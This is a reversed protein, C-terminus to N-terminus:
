MRLDEVHVGPYKKIDFTFLANQIAPNLNIQEFEIIYRSGDKQFTELKQIDSSSKSVTMRLKAFESANDTPKFEIVQCVVGNSTKEGTIAYIFQDDVFENIFVEPDLLGAISEDGADMIQIEELDKLYVWITNGDSVIEQMDSFLRFSNGRKTLTGKQIEPSQEPFEITLKYNIEINKHQSLQNKVNDLLKRAAPDTTENQAYTLNALILVAFIFLSRIM